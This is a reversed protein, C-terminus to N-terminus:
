DVCFENGEPDHMVTWIGFGPQDFDEIKTAGLSVLRDVEANIDYRQTEADSERDAVRLDLHVRNKSTKEEPVRQFFLRPGDGEPDELGDFNDWDEESIGKDVAFAAWTDYPGPPAPRRYGLADLWFDALSTPNNADFTVQFSRSM